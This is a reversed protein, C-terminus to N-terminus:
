WDPMLEPAYHKLWMLLREFPNNPFIWTFYAALSCDDDYLTLLCKLAWGDRYSCSPSPNCDTDIWEPFVDCESLQILESSDAPFPKTKVVAIHNLTDVCSSTILKLAYDVTIEQIYRQPAIHEATFQLRLPHNKTHPM